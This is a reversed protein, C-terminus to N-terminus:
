LKPHFNLDFVQNARERYKQDGTKIAYKAYYDTIIDLYGCGCDAPYAEVGEEFAAFAEDYREQAYLQQGHKVCAQQLTIRGAPFDAISLGKKMVERAKAYNKQKDILFIAFSQYDWPKKSNEVILEFNKEQDDFRGLKEFAFDKVVLAYAKDKRSPSQILVSDAIEIAQEYKGSRNALRGEITKTTLDDPHAAKIKEFIELAKANQQQGSYYNFYGHLAEFNIPDIALAEDFYKKGNKLLDEKTKYDFSDHIYSLYGIGLIGKAKASDPYKQTFAVLENMTEWYQDDNGSYFVIIEHASELYKEKTVEIPEVTPSPTIPALLHPSFIKKNKYSLNVITYTIGVTILLFLLNFVVLLIFNMKKTQKDIESQPPNSHELM